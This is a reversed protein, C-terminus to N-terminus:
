AESVSVSLNSRFATLSTRFNVVYTFVKADAETVFCAIFNAETSDIIIGGYVAALEKAQQIEDM